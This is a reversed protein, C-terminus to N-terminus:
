KELSTRYSIYSNWVLGVAQVNLLQYQVPVFYFNVLQVLPWVKYNNRLIDFYENKLKEKLQVLDNGQLTGITSLMVGIFMPAFLLQDVCVKKLVVIGGQSGIYKDLLRYWTGPVPGALFLGIGGFKATRVFDLDKIEKREVVNQAIQDGLAMLTGAQIAQTVMPYKAFFKRYM